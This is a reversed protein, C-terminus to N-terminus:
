QQEATARRHALGTNIDRHLRVRLAAHKSVDANRMHREELDQGAFDIEAAHQAISHPISRRCAGVDINWHIPETDRRDAGPDFWDWKWPPERRFQIGFAEPDIVQEHHLGLSLRGDQDQLREDM